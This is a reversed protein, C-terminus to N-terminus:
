FAELQASLSGVPPDGRSPGTDAGFGGNWQSRSIAKEGPGTKRNELASTTPSALADNTEVDGLLTQPVEHEQCVLAM